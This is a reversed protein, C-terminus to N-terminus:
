NLYNILIGEKKSEPGQVMLPEHVPDQDQNQGQIIDGKTRKGQRSFFM